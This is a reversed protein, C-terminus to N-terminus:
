ADLNGANAPTDEPTTKPLLVQQGSSVRDVQVRKGFLDDILEQHLFEPGTEHRVTQDSLLLFEPQVSLALNWDHTVMLTAVGRTRRIRELATMLHSQHGLDQNSTPEDLLLLEPEQALARAVMIREQEGGSCHAFLQHRLHLVNLENMMEEVVKRDERTEFPLWGLHPTRGLSVMEEVTFGGSHPPSQPVLAMRRAREKMPMDSLPVAGWLVEGEHPVLKGMMIQLLTSKGVGNAGLLVTNSNPSLACNVNHFLTSQGPYGYSVNRVRLLPEDLPM